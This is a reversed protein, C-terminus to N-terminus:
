SAVCVVFAINPRTHSLYILRGVLRQYRGKDVPDGLDTDKYKWNAKMPTEALKCRLMGTKKLLDLTYKRHSISIGSKTRAIEMRLFYRLQGLDKIEFKTALTKKLKELEYEDDLTLIIDDVYVILISIDDSSHKYFLTHDAQSQLYGFKKISKTFREFWARLSQKLGYLSNM